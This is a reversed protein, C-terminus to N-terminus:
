PFTQHQHHLSRPQVYRVLLNLASALYFRKGVDKHTGPIRVIIGEKNSGKMDPVAQGSITRWVWVRGAICSNSKGRLAFKIKLRSQGTDSRGIPALEYYFWADLKCFPLQLHIGAQLDPQESRVWRM